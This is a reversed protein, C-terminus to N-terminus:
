SLGADLPMGADGPGGDTGADPRGTPIVHVREPPPATSRRENVELPVCGRRGTCPRPEGPAPCLGAAIEEETCQPACGAGGSPWWCGGASSTDGFAHGSIVAVCDGRAGPITATFTEGSVPAPEVTAVTGHAWNILWASGIPRAGETEDLRATVRLEGGIAVVPTTSPEFALEAQTSEPLEIPYRQGGERGLEDEVRLEVVRGRLDGSVAFQIAFTREATVRTRSAREGDVFVEVCSGPVLTADRAVLAGYSVVETGEDRVLIPCARVGPPLVRSRACGALSTALALAVLLAWTSRARTTRMPDLTM